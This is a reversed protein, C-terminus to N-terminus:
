SSLPSNQPQQYFNMEHCSNCFWPQSNIYQFGAGSAAFLIFGVAFVPFLWVWCGQRKM